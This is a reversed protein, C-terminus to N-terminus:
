PVPKQEFKKRKKLLRYMAIAKEREADLIRREAISLYKRKLSQGASREAASKPKEPNPQLMSKLLM